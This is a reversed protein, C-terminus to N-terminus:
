PDLDDQRGGRRAGPGTGCGPGSCSGGVTNSGTPGSFARACARSGRRAVPARRGVRASTSPARSRRMSPSGSPRTSTRSISASAAAVAPVGSRRSPAGPASGSSIATRSALPRGAPAGTTISSRSSTRPSTTTVPPAPKFRDRRPRPGAIRAGRGTRRCSSRRRRRRCARSGRRHRGGSPHRRRRCALRFGLSAGARSAGSFQASATRAATAEARISPTVIVECVWATKSSYAAPANSPSSITSCTRLNYTGTCPEMPVPGSRMIEAVSEVTWSSSCASWPAWCRRRCRSSFLCTASAARM